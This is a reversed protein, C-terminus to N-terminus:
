DEFQMYGHADAFGLRRYLPAGMETAELMISGVGARQLEELKEPLRDLSWRYQGPMSPIGDKVGAGETVFMPYILSSANARTERVMRRLTESGRLRRSRQLLEM